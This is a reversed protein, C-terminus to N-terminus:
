VALVKSGSDGLAWGLNLILSLSPYCPSYYTGESGLTPMAESIQPEQPPM